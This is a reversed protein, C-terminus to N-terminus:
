NILKMLSPKVLWEVLYAIKHVRCHEENLRFSFENIYARCRKKSWHHYVGNYGRKLVAGVSRM